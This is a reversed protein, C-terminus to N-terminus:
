GSIIYRGLAIIQWPQLEPAWAPVEAPHEKMYRKVGAQYSEIVARVKDPLKPYNAEAVAQHQWLRQRYDHQLFDPGFAEAMTGSARRYQKLLEELRDEAQAYGMGYAAGEETPAFIHPVGFTDRHITVEEGDNAAAAPAFLALLAALACVIRAM